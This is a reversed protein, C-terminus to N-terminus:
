KALTIPVEACVASMLKLLRLIGLVPVTCHPSANKKLVVTIASVILM